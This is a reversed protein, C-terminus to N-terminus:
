SKNRKVYYNEKIEMRKYKFHKCAKDTPRTIGKKSCSWIYSNFKNCFKCEWYMNELNWIM